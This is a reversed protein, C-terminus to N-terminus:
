GCNAAQCFTKDPLDEQYRTRFLPLGHTQPTGGGARRSKRAREEVIRKRPLIVTLGANRVANKAVVLVPTLDPAAGSSSLGLHHSRGTRWSASHLLQPAYKDSERITPPRALHRRHRGKELTFISGGNRCAPLAPSAAPDHVKCAPCARVPSKRLGCFTPRSSLFEAESSVRFSAAQEM